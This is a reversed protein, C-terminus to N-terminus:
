NSVHSKIMLVILGPMITYTQFGLIRSASLFIFFNLTGRPFLSNLLLVDSWVHAGFFLRVSTFRSFTDVTSVALHLCTLTCAWSIHPILFLDPAILHDEPWTSSVCFPHASSSAQFLSLFSCVGCPLGRVEVCMVCVGRCERTHVCVDCVHCVCAIIM